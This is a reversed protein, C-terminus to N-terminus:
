LLTNSKGCNTKELKRQTTWKTPDVFRQYQKLDVLRYKYFRKTRSYDCMASTNPDGPMVIYNESLRMYLGRVAIGWYINWVELDEDGIFFYGLKKLFHKFKVESM